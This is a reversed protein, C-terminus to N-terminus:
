LRTKGFIRALIGVNTDPKPLALRQAQERWADRDTRLEETRQLEAELQTRLLLITAESSADSSRKPAADQKVSKNLTADPWVRCLESFDIEFGGAENKIASVKGKKISRLMTSRSIGAADAAESLSIM